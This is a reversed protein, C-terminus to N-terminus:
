KCVLKKLDTIHDPFSGIYLERNIKSKQTRITKERTGDLAVNISKKKKM